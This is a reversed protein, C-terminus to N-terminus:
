GVWEANGLCIPVIYAMRVAWLQMLVFTHQIKTLPELTRKNLCIACLCHQIKSIIPNLTIM